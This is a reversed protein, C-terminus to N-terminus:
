KFSLTVCFSLWDHSKGVTPLISSSVNEVTHTEQWTKCASRRSPRPMDQTLLDLPQRPYTEVVVVVEVVEGVITRGWGGLGVEVLGDGEEEPREVVVWPAIPPATPPTARRARM